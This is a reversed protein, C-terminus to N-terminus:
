GKKPKEDKVMEEQTVRIRKIPRREKVEEIVEEHLNNQVVVVQIPQDLGVFLDETEYLPDFKWDVETGPSDKELWDRGFHDCSKGNISTFCLTSVADGTYLSLTLIKM